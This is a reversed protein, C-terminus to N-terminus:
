AARKEQQERYLDIIRRIVEAVPIGLRKAEDRLFEQQPQSLHLNLRPARMTDIHCGDPM